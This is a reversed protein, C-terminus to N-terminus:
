KKDKQKLKVLIQERMTNGLPMCCGGGFAPYSEM